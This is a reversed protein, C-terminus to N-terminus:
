PDRSWIPIRPQGPRHLEVSMAVATIDPIGHDVALEAIATSRSRRRRWMEFDYDEIRRFTATGRPQAAFVTSGSNIASLTVASAHHELLLETDVTIITQEIDRYARARLLRELRSESLWFFVRSNLSRYFDPCSMDELCKALKKDSIPKNDRIAVDGHVHHTITVWDPRRAAEIAERDVGTLEFLDLLATTSLLGHKRISPWGGVAAMHYLRPFYRVLDDRTM